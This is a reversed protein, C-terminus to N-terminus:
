VLKGNLMDICMTQKSGDECYEIRLINEESFEASVIEPRPDNFIHLLLDKKEQTYDGVNDSTFLLSGFIHNVSALIKRQELTMDMNDDRLLFVDPDNLFARKDLGRRFVSNCITNKTSVGERQIEHKPKWQLGMDSGIRCYDVKGFAPALPVGCGLIIKDGVCERIFDMAECMLQGRSKNYQPVVAAAYLFDLKVMDYGWENLIVDFFNHIYERVEPKSIDLAYFGNWNFGCNVKRGKNNRILWDHHEKALKSNLQAALPALWIGAKMGKEHIKDAIFKMGNPFKVPDISLWDGVATQFGDDIQFVDIKADIKSLSELDTLVIKENIQSYYNYWTTYGNAKSVRPTAIKMAAFYKDFVEDMSGKFNILDLLTYKNNVSVGELDRTFEIRKEPCYTRIITYGDRESLSAFLDVVDENRIYGYSFGHFHGNENDYKIFNVDGSKGLPSILLPFLRAKTMQPPAENIFYERCDTWSQYGNLFVRDKDRFDYPCSVKFDIESIPGAKTNLTLKIHDTFSETDISYHENEFDKSSYRRGDISYNITFNFKEM